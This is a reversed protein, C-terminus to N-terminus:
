EVVKEELLIELVKADRDIMTKRFLTDQHQYNKNIAIRPEVYVLVFEEEKEYDDLSQMTLNDLVNCLYYYNEQYFIKDDDTKQIRLVKGFEYITNEIVVGPAAGGALNINSDTFTSGTVNLENAAGGNIQLAANNFTCGDILASGGIASNTTTAFGYDPDGNFTCDVLAYGANSGMSCVYVSHTKDAAADFVIGEFSVDNNWTQPTSAQRYTYGLIFTGTFTVDAGDAAVFAIDAKQETPHSAAACAAALDGPTKSDVVHDATYFGISDSYTGSAITITTKETTSAANVASSLDAFADTGITYNVGDVTVTSGNSLSKWAQNVYIAAM